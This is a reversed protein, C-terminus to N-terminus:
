RGGAVVVHFDGGGRDVVEVDLIIRDDGGYRERKRAQYWAIVRAEDPDGQALLDGRLRAVLTRDVASADQMVTLNWIAAALLLTKRVDAAGDGPDIRDLLPAAFETLTHSLKDFAPDRGLRREYSANARRERRTRRRELRRRGESRAAM